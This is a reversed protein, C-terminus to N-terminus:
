KPTQLWELQAAITQEAISTGDSLALRHLNIPLALAGHVASLLMQALTDPDGPRFLGKRQGRSIADSFLMFFRDDALAVQDPPQQAEPRVYLFARRFVQPTEVSFRVYAHLLAELQEAPNSIDEALQAMQQVLKRAPQRWLSQLLESLSGFYSYVTGVSVGALEAVARASVNTVGNEAYLKDAAQRIKHRIVRRQEDTLAPRPM